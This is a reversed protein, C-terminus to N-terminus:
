SGKSKFCCMKSFFNSLSEKFSEWKDQLDQDDPLEVKEENFEELIRDPHHILEEIDKEVKLVDDVLHSKHFPHVMPHAASFSLAFLVACLKKM